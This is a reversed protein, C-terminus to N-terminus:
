VFAFCLLAFLSSTLPKDAFSSVMRSSPSFTPLVNETDRERECLHKVIVLIHNQPISKPSIRKFIKRIHEPPISVMPILKIFLKWPIYWHAAMGYLTNSFLNNKKGYESKERTPEAEGAVKWCESDWKFCYIYLTTHICQMDDRITECVEFLDSTFCVYLSFSFLQLNTMSKWRSSHKGHFKICVYLAVTVVSCGESDCLKHEMSNPSAMEATAVTDGYVFFVVVFYVEYSLRLAYCAYGRCGVGM